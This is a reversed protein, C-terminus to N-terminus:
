PLCFDIFFVFFLVFFSRIKFIEAKKSKEYAILDEFSLLDLLDFVSFTNELFHLDLLDGAVESVPPDEQDNRGDILGLEPVSARPLTIPPDVALM